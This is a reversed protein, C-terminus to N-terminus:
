FIGSHKLKAESTVNNHTAKYFYLKPKTLLVANLVHKVEFVTVRKSSKNCLDLERRKIALFIVGFCMRFQVSIRIKM